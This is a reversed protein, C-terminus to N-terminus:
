EDFEIELTLIEYPDLRIPLERKRKWTLDRLREELLNVEWAGGIARGM